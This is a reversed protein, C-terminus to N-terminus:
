KTWQTEGGSMIIIGYQMRYAFTSHRVATNGGGPRNGSWPGSVRQGWLLQGHPDPIRGGSVEASQKGPTRRLFHGSGGESGGRGAGDAGGADHVLQSRATRHDHATLGALERGLPMEDHEGTEGIVAIHGHVVGVRGM